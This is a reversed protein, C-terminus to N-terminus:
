RTRRCSGSRTAANRSNRLTIVFNVDVFMHLEGFEVREVDHLYRAPLLVVFLTPGYAGVQGSLAASIADARAPM